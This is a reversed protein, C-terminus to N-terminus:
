LRWVLDLWEALEQRPMSVHRAVSWVQIAAIAGDVRIKLPEFSRCVSEIELEQLRHHIQWRDLSETEMVIETELPESSM